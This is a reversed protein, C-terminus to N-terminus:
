TVGYDSSDHRESRRLPLQYHLKFRIMGACGFLSGGGGRSRRVSQGRPDSLVGDSCVSHENDQYIKGLVKNYVSYPCNVQFSDRHDLSKVVDPLHTFQVIFEPTCFKQKCNLHWYEDTIKDIDSYSIVYFSLDIVIIPNQLLDSCNQVLEDFTRDGETM